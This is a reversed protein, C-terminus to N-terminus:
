NKILPHYYFHIENHVKKPNDAFSSLGPKTYEFLEKDLVLHGGLVYKQINQNNKNRKKEGLYSEHFTFALVRSGTSGADIVVAHVPKHYGLSKAISDVARNGLHWPINDIYLVLVM